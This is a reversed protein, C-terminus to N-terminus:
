NLRSSFLDFLPKRYRPEIETTLILLQSIVQCDLPRPSKFSNIVSLLIDGLQEDSYKSKARAALAITSVAVDKKLKDTLIPKTTKAGTQIAKYQFRLIQDTEQLDLMPYLGYLGRKLMLCQEPSATSFKQAFLKTIISIDEDSLNSIGRFMLQQFRKYQAISEFAWADNKAAAEDYIASLITEDQLVIRNFALYKEAKEKSNVSPFGMPINGKEATLKAEEIFAERPMAVCGSLSSVVLAAVVILLICKM